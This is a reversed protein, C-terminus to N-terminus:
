RRDPAGRRRLFGIAGDEVRLSGGLRRVAVEAVVFFREELGSVGRVLLGGVGTRGDREIIEVDAILADSEPVAEDPLLGHLRRGRLHGRLLRRRLLGPRLLLPPRRNSAPGSWSSRAARAGCACRWAAL